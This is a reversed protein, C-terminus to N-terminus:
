HCVVRMPWYWMYLNCLRSWSHCATCVTCKLLMIIVYYASQSPVHSAYSCVRTTCARVHIYVQVYLNAPAAWDRILTRHRGGVSLASAHLWGICSWTLPYVHCTNWSYDRSCVSYAVTRSAIELAPHLTSVQANLTTTTSHVRFLHPDRPLKSRGRVLYMYRAYRGCIRLM